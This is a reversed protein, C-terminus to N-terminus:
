KERTKIYVSLEYAVESSIKDYNSSQPIYEEVVITAKNGLKEFDVPVVMTNAVARMPLIGGYVNISPIIIRGDTSLSVKFPTNSNFDLATDDSIRKITAFAGVVSACSGGIPFDYRFSKGIRHNPTKIKFLRLM